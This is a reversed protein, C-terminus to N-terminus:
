FRTLFTDLIASRSANIVLLGRTQCAIV